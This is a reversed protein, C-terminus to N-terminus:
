LESPLTIHQSRHEFDSPFEGLVLGLTAGMAATDLPQGSNAPQFLTQARANHEFYSPAHRQMRPATITYCSM